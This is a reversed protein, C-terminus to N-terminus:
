PQAVATISPRGVRMWAYDDFGTLSVDDPITLGLDGLASMVGLTAFNTLAIVASPRGHRALHAAFRRGIAEFTVGGELIPPPPLGHAAFAAAVGAARERINSLKLSTAVVLVDRHGLGLLHRAAEGAAAANDITISDAGPVDAVRDLM